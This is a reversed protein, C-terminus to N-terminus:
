IAFSFYLFDRADQMGYTEVLKQFFLFTKGDADSSHPFIGCFNIHHKKFSRESLEYSLVCLCLHVQFIRVFGEKSDQCLSFKNESDLESLNRRFGKKFSAWPSFREKM